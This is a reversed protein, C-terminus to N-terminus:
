AFCKLLVILGFLAKKKTTFNFLQDKRQLLLNGVQKKCFHTSLKDRHCSPDYNKMAFSNFSM